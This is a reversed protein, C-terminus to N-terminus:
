APAAHPPTLLPSSAKAGGRTRTTSRLKRISAKKLTRIFLKSESVIKGKDFCADAGHALAEKAADSGDTSASSLVVVPAHAYGRLEDLFALGNVGPMNLDLTILTPRFTTILARAAAVDPAVAIEHCHALNVLLEEVMARITRSDDIILVRSNRM